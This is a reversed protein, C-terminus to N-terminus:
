KEKRPPTKFGIQHREDTIETNQQLAKERLESLLNHGAWTLGKIVYDVGGDEGDVTELYYEFDICNKEQLLEVHYDIEGQDYGSIHLVPSAEEAEIKELIRLVLQIDRKM